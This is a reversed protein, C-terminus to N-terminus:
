VFNERMPSFADVLVGAERCVVGHWVNSPAYFSDGTGIVRKESGVTVEFSGSEVYSIQAHIHHHLAGISGADFAVKMLMLSPEYALVKRRVGEGVVQWPQEADEQFLNTPTFLM